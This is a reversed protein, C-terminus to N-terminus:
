GNNEGQMYAGCNPCYTFTLTQGEQSVCCSSCKMWPHGMTEGFIWHAPVNERVNAVPLEELWEKYSEHGRIFDRNANAKDYHGNAFPHAIADEKKVYESM